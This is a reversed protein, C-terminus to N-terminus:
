TSFLFAPTLLLLHEREQTCPLHLKDADLLFPGAAEKTWSGDNIQAPFAAHATLSLSPPVPKQGHLRSVLWGMGSHGDVENITSTPLLAM